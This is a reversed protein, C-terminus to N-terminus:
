FADRPPEDQKEDAPNADEKEREDASGASSLSSNAM